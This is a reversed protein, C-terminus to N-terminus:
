RNAFDFDDMRRALEKWGCSQLVRVQTNILKSKIARAKAAEGTIGHFPLMISFARDTYSQLPTLVENRRTYFPDEGEACPKGFVNFQRCAMPRLPHISCAGEILFPCAAGKEHNLLRQKLIGRVPQATKEVIFWYIGVLELPYVPIDKHTRCCNGCGKGCSLRTRFKGEHKRIAADIGEDVTAYADLLMPLWPLKPEDDPFHLRTESM